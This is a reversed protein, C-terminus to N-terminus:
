EVYDDYITIENDRYSSIILDQDLEKALAFLEQVSNIEVEVYGLGYSVNYKDLISSYYGIDEKWARELKIKM